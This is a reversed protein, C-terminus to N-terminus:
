TNKLTELLFHMEQLNVTNSGMVHSPGDGPAASFTKNLISEVQDDDSVFDQNLNEIDVMDIPTKLIENL